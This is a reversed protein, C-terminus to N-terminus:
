VPKMAKQNSVMLLERKCIHHDGHHLFQLMGTIEVSKAWSITAGKSSWWVWCAEWHCNGAWHEPRNGYGSGAPARSCPKGIDADHDLFWPNELILGCNDWVIMWLSNCSKWSRVLLCVQKNGMFYKLYLEYYKWSYCSASPNANWLFMFLINERLISSVNSVSHWM